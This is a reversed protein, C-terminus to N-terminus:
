PLDNKITNLQWMSSGQSAGLQLRRARARANNQARHQWVEYAVQFSVCFLKKPVNDSTSKFLGPCTNRKLCPWTQKKFLSPCRGMKPCHWIKKIFFL